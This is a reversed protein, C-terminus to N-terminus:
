AAGLREELVREVGAQWPPLHLGFHRQLRTTDLRSNLPRRAAADLQDTRVAQLSACASAAAGGRRVAWEVVHQAVEFRSAAGAPALHYVGALAPQQLATRLAHATVDAVLEAGTPAGVQDAVVQLAAGRQARALVTTVFNDRRASCVWSTRFVLYRCGSDRVAQEGQLKTRGYVNLPHPADDEAWPADGSGDFVYDTGYHVLWAGHEAALAALLAPADANCQRAAAPDAEAADVATWAAANVIVDPRSAHVADRLTQPRTLDAEARPPAIVEGVPALARQLEWGVQGTGGLLLLKM